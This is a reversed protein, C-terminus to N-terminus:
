KESGHHNRAPIGVDLYLNINFLLPYSANKMPQALDIM